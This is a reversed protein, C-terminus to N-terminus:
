FSFGPMVFYVCSWVGNEYSYYIKYPGQYQIVEGNEIVAEYTVTGEGHGMGFENEENENKIEFKVEDINYGDNQFHHFADLFYEIKQLVQNSTYRNANADIMSHSLITEFYKKNKTLWNLVFQHTINGLDVFHNPHFNEYVFNFTAGDPIEKEVEKELLEESLFRYKTEDSYTTHLFEVQIHHQNLLDNVTEIGKRLEEQNCEEAKKFVPNGLKAAITEYEADQYNEEFQIMNKLFQNEIDPPISDGETFMQFADGFQAKLKMKLIENEIRFHEMPDESFKEEEDAM